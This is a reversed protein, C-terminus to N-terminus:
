PCAVAARSSDQGLPERVLSKSINIDDLNQFINAVGQISLVRNNIM